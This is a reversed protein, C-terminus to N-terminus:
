LIGREDNFCNKGRARGKQYEFRCLPETGVYLVSCFPGTGLYNRAGSVSRATVPVPVPM